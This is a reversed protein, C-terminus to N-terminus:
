KWAHTKTETPPSLNSQWLSLEVRSIADSWGYYNVENQPLDGNRDLPIAKHTGDPMIQYISAIELDSRNPSLKYDVGLAPEGPRVPNEKSTIPLVVHVEVIDYLNQPIYFVITASVKENARLYLDPFVSGASVLKIQDYKYHKGAAHQSRKSIQEDVGHVWDKGNEIDREPMGVTIGWAKWLNACLYVTNASPNRATIVLEIAELNRAAAEAATSLGAEKVSVETTINIASAPWLVEKLYFQWFGLIALVVPIAVAAVWERVYRM